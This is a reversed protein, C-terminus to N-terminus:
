RALQFGRNFDLQPNANIPKQIGRGKDHLGIRDTIMRTIIYCFRVSRFRYTVIILLHQFHSYLTPVYTGVYTHKYSHIYTHRDRLLLGIQKIVLIITSQISRCM